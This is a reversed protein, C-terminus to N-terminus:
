RWTLSRKHTERERQQRDQNPIQQAQEPEPQNQLAHYAQMESALSDDSPLSYKIRGNGFSDEGSGSREGRGTAYQDRGSNRFDRRRFVEKQHLSESIAIATDESFNGNEYEYWVERM